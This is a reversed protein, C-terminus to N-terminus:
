KWIIKLLYIIILYEKEKFNSEIEFYNIFSQNVKKEDSIIKIVKM